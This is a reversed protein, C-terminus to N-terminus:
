SLQTSVYFCICLGTFYHLWLSIWRCCHSEVFFCLSSPLLVFKMFSAPFFLYGCASSWFKTVRKWGYVVMGRQDFVKVESTILPFMPPHTSCACKLINTCIIIKKSLPGAINHVLNHCEVKMAPNDENCCVWPTFVLINKNWRLTM